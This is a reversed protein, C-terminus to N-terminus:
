SLAALEDPAIDEELILFEHGRRIFCGPHIDKLKIHRKEVSLGTPFDWYYFIEVSGSELAVSLYYKFRSISRRTLQNRGIFGCACGMHSGVSYVYPKTIFERIVNFTEDLPYNYFMLGNPERITPLPRNSGVFFMYCM